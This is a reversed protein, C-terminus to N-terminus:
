GDVEIRTLHVPDYPRGPETEPTLVHLKFARLTATSFGKALGIKVGDVTCDIAEGLTHNSTSTYPNAAPRVGSEWIKIQEERSRYGSTVVIEKGVYKAVADARSLLVYNVHEIDVSSSAKHIHTLKALDAKSNEFGGQPTRNTDDTVSGANQPRSQETKLWGQVMPLYTERYLKKVAAVYAATASASGGFYSGVGAWIDADNGTDGVTAKLGTRLRHAGVWINYEPNWRGGEYEVEGKPSQMADAELKLGVSLLQMPGVAADDGGFYGALRPNTHMNAFRTKWLEVRQSLTSPDSVVPGGPVQAKVGLDEQTPRPYWEPNSTDTKPGGNVRENRFGTEHACISLLTALFVTFDWPGRWQRAAKIFFDGWKVGLTSAADDPTDKQGWPDKSTDPDSPVRRTLAYKKERLRVECVMGDTGAQIRVGIIFFDGEIGEEPIRLHCMKNQRIIYGPDSVLIKHEVSGVQSEFIEELGLKKAGADTTADTDLLIKRPKKLWDAITPDTLEVRHGGKGNHYYVWVEHLRSQGTKHGQFEMVPMYAQKVSANDNPDPNGFFYSPNQNYNLTSGMLAGDPETWIWMGEKRYMRYWFEWYSESGDTYHRKKVPKTPALGSVNTIGLAKAQQAVISSSRANQWMTPEATSDTALSSLDRGTLTIVGDKYDADDAIGTMIPTAEPHGFALLTVRIENDKVFVDMLDGHPDGIEMNWADSDNDLSSDVYYSEITAIPIQRYAKGQWKTTVLAKAVVALNAM